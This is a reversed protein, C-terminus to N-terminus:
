EIPQQTELNDNPLNDSQPNSTIPTRRIVPYNIRVTATQPKCSQSEHFDFGIIM